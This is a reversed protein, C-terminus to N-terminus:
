KKYVSKAICYVKFLFRLFYITWFISEKILELVPLATPLQIKLIDSILFNISAKISIINRIKEINFQAKLNLLAIGQKFDAKKKKLLLINILILYLLM